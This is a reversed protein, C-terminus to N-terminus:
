CTLLRWGSTFKLVADICELVFSRTKEPSTLVRAALSEHKQWFEASYSQLDTEVCVPPTTLLKTACAKNNAIPLSKAKRGSTVPKNPLRLAGSAILEDINSKKYKGESVVATKPIRGTRQFAGVSKTTIGLKEALEATTYVAVMTMTENREKTIRTQKAKEALRRTLRADAVRLKKLTKMMDKSEPVVDRGVWDKSRYMDRGGQERKRRFVLYREYEESSLTESFDDPYQPEM